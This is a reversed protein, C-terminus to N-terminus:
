ESQYVNENNKIFMLYYEIWSSHKPNHSEVYNNSFLLALLRIKNIICTIKTSDFFRKILGDANNPHYYKKDKSSM